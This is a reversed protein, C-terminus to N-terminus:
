GGELEQLQRYREGNDGWITENFMTMIKERTQADAHRMFADQIRKDRLIYRGFDSALYIDRAASRFAQDGILARIDLLFADAVEYLGDSMLRRPLLKDPFRGSTAAAKRARYFSELDMAVQRWGTPALQNLREIAMVAYIDAMGENFWSPGMSWYAHALEHALVFASTVCCRAIRIFQGDNFDNIEFPGNVVALVSAPFPVGVLTELVPVVATMIAMQRDADQGPEYILLLEFDTGSPLRLKEYKFLKREIAETSITPRSADYRTIFTLGREVFLAEERTLGDKFWPQARYLAILESRSYEYREFALDVDGIGPRTQPRGVHFEDVEVPTLTPLFDANRVTEGQCAVLLLAVLAALSALARLKM